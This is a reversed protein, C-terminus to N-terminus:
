IEDAGIDPAAPDRPDGDMDTLPAGGPEGAGDCPSGAQIHWDTPYAVFMPDVDLTGGLNPIDTLLDIDGALTLGNTTDDDWYLATPSDWPDLANSQFHSPDAAIDGEAVNYVGTGDCDGARIINSRYMGMPATPPAALDVMLQLGVSDCTGDAGGGDIVNSHVDIENTGDAAVVRLGVSPVDCEGGRIRNNELRAWTNEALVGIEEGGATACGGSIDNREVVTGANDLWLGVTTVGGNANIANDAVRNCAGDDCRVGTSTPPYGFASGRINANNLVACRSAATGDHGCYVGNVEQAAGEAGGAIDLNGDIVPHCDGVAHVGDARASPDSAEARVQYNDVIWPAGGNCARALVGYSEFVGGWAGIYSQRVQIGFSGGEISVAAGTDGAVGCIASQEITSNPADVLQVGYTLSGAPAASARGVIGRDNANWPSPCTDDCYGFIDLSECNDVLHVESGIARVGVSEVSGAGGVINMRTLTAESNNMLDVGYSYEVGPAQNEDMRIDILVVGQANDLTIGASTQFDGREILFGDLITTSTINQFLVGEAVGPQIVTNWANCRTNGATEYSGYVHVGERMVVPGSYQHFAGCNNGAAVCVFQGLTPDAADIAAQITAFPLGATGDATSDDGSPTVWVCNPICAEDIAGDCDNDVGDCDNDVTANAWNPICTGLQGGPMCADVQAECAGFGCTFQGLGDDATGNCDDDEDNCAEANPVVQGSCETWVGDTCSALGTRCTGVGETGPPGDYCPADVVNSGITDDNDDCDPGACDPDPGYGDADADNECGPCDVECQGGNCAWTGCSPPGYLSECDAEDVCESVDTLPGSDGDGKGGKDVPECGLLGVVMAIWLPQRM